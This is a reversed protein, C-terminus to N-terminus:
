RGKFEPKRKEKFAAMGEAKDETSFLVLFNRREYDLGVELLSAHAKLVADKGLQAALPAQRAVEGALAVAESLYDAEPVVRTLLGADFAEAASIQRGTLVLEMARAKGVAHTLRQTGGAGPIIGLSIEPQGFRATESAVIMDCTMALELGGGLCFGSVAAVLPKRAAAIRKWPNPSERKVMEAATSDSMQKIDGGAAFARESGTLVVCRVEDDADLAELTDALEGLLAANLANLAKPRNLTLVAVAPDGEAREALLLKEEAM